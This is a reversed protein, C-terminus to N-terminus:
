KEGKAARYAAAAEHFPMAGSRFCEEAMKMLHLGHQDLLVDREGNTRCEWAGCSCFALRGQITLSHNTEM